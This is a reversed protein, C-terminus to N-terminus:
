SWAQQHIFSFVSECRYWFNAVTKKKLSFSCGKEDTKQRLDIQSFVMNVIANCVTFCGFHQHDLCASFDLTPKCFENTLDMHHCVSILWLQSVAGFPTCQKQMLFFHKCCRNEGGKAWLTRDSPSQKWKIKVLCCRLCHTLNAIICQIDRSM